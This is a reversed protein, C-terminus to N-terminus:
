QGALAVYQGHNARTATIMGKMGSAARFLQAAYSAATRAKFASTPTHNDHRIWVKAELKQNLLPWSIQPTPLMLQYVLKQAEAIEQLTPLQIAMRTIRHGIYM